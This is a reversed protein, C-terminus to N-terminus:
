KLMMKDMKKDAKKEIKLGVSRHQAHLTERRQGELLRSIWAYREHWRKNKQITELCVRVCM